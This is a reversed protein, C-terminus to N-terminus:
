NSASGFVRCDVITPVGDTAVFVAGADDDDDSADSFSDISLRSDGALSLVAFGAAFFDM